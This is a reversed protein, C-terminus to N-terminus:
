CNYYLKFEIPHTTMEYTRVEKMKLEIYSDIFDNTFVGGARLFERDKDLADLAERLSGSVEHIKKSEKDSLEYLNKTAPDGPHIKHKIGDLGAMLMAAFSLYPNAAPDPFRAEIRKANKSHAIPIRIAASRNRSSYALKVPAEFGPVLRKYSNTTPNTFANLAKAHKIIGGIYYLCTESLDAYKGAEFFLPKDGKWLSQHTHMGSGNDGVVPKPMFTATKGHKLAVNHITYKFKQINDASHILTSFEFGIEYQSAAVEHHHLTPRLNLEKLINMMESRVDFATDVPQVPFYGGKYDTRHGKNGGNIEACSNKPMENSNVSHSIHEPTIRFKVDEFMFFEMEPGFFATDAIRSEKLYNEAKQAITRPDRIYGLGDTPEIVNCTLVLCKSATFPDVFATSCDPILLMDSEEIGKWGEISSGDFGVGKDLFTKDVNDAAYTIHHLKGRLDTFRFDVETIKNDKIFKLVDSSNKM